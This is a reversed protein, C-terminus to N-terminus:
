FDSFFKKIVFFAIHFFCFFFIYFRFLIILIITFIVPNLSKMVVDGKIKQGYYSITYFPDSSGDSDAPILDQALYINSILIGPVLRSEAFTKSVAKVEKEGAIQCLKIQFGMKIVGADHKMIKMDLSQDPTFYYLKPNEQLDKITQRIFCLSTSGQCLYIFLDPLETENNYPFECVKSKSKYWKAVGQEIVCEEFPIEQDAWRVKISYKKEKQPFAFGYFIDVILQWKSQGMSISKLNQLSIKEIKEPDSLRPSDAKLCDISLLIRGKWYSGMSPNIDMLQGYETKSKDPHAGYLNM